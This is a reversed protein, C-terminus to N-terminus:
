FHDRPYKKNWHKRFIESHNCGGSEHLNVEVTIGAQACTAQIVQATTVNAVKNLVDLTVTVGGSLGAAELYEKAKAINM